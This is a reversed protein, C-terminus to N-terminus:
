LLVSSLRRTVEDMSFTCQADHAIQSRPIARLASIGAAIDPTTKGDVYLVYRDLHDIQCNRNAIVPTGVALAEAAALSTQLNDDPLIVFADCESYLAFRTDDYVAERLTVCNGLHLAAIRCAVDSLAGEDNGMITLHVADFYPRLAHVLDVANPVGKTPHLRGVFCLKLTAAESTPRNAPAASGGPCYKAPVLIPHPLVHVKEPAVGIAIYQQREGGNEAFCVTVASVFLRRFFFDWVGKKGVPLQSITGLSHHFSSRLM